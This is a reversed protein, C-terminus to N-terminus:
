TPEWSHDRTSGLISWLAALYAGSHESATGFLPIASPDIIVQPYISLARSMGILGRVLLYQVCVYRHVSTPDERILSYQLQLGGPLQLLKFIM